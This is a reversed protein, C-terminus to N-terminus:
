CNKKNCYDKFIVINSQKKNDIDKLIESSEIDKKSYGTSNRQEVGFAEKMLDSISRIGKQPQVFNINM